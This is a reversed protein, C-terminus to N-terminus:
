PNEIGAERDEKSLFRLPIQPNVVFHQLRHSKNVPEVQQHWLIFTSDDFKPSISNPFSSSTLIANQQSAM